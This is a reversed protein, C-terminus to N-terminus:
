IEEVKGTRCNEFIGDTIQGHLEDWCEEETNRTIRVISYDNTKTKDCNEVEIIRIDNDETFDYRYSPNYSENQKQGDMGYVKWARTVM